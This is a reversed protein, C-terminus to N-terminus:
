PKNLFDDVGAQMAELYNARGGLGTLLMIYTYKERSSTRIHQCVELGNKEPMMWDLIAIPFTDSNFAELAQAGDHAMVVEHGAKVLATRLLLLSTSDDDAILIHM